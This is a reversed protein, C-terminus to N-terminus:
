GKTTEDPALRHESQETWKTNRDCYTKAKNLVRVQNKFKWLAVSDRLLLGVEEVAPSVLKELFERALDISKELATSSIDIKNTM